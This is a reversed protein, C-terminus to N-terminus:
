VYVRHRKEGYEVACLCNPHAPPEDVDGFVGDFVGDDDIWGLDENDACLDPDAVWRKVNAIEYTYARSKEDLRVGLMADVIRLAEAIAAAEM